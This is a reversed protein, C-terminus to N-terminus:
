RCREFVVSLLKFSKLRFRKHCTECWYYPELVFPARHGCPLKVM